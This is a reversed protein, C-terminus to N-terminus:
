EKGIRNIPIIKFDMEDSIRKYEEMEKDTIRADSEDEKIIPAPRGGNWQEAEEKVKHEEIKIKAYDEMAEYIEDANFFKPFVVLEEGALKKMFERANM